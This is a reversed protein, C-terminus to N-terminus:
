LCCVQPLVCMFFDPLPLMPIYSKCSLSLLLLINISSHCISGGLELNTEFWCGTKKYNWQHFHNSRSHKGDIHPMTVTLKILNPHDTEEMGTYRLKASFPEAGVTGAVRPQCMGAVVAYVFLCWVNQKGLVEVCFVIKHTLTKDSCPCCTSSHSPFRQWCSSIANLWIWQSCM